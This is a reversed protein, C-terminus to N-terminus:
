LKARVKRIAEKKAERILAQKQKATIEEKTM